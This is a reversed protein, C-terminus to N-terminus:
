GARHKYAPDAQWALWYGAEAVPVRRSPLSRASNAVMPHATGGGEQGWEQQMSGLVPTSLCPQVALPAASSCLGPAPVQQGGLQPCMADAMDHTILTTDLDPKLKDM